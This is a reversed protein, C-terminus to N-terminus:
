DTCKLSIKTLAFKMPQRDAQYSMTCRYKCKDEARHSDFMATSAAAVSPLPCKNNGNIEFHASHATSDRREVRYVSLRDPRQTPSYVFANLHIMERKTDTHAQTGTHKDKHSCNWGAVQRTRVMDAYNERM